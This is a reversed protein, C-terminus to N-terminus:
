ENFFLRDWARAKFLGVFSVLEIPHYRPIISPNVTPTFESRYNTHMWQDWLRRNQACESHLKERAEAQLWDPAQFGRFAREIKYVRARRHKWQERTYPHCSQRNVMEFLYERRQYRDKFLAFDELALGKTVAIDRNWRYSLAALLPEVMRFFQGVMGSHFKTAAVQFTITRPQSWWKQPTGM